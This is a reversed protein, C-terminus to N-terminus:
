FNDTIQEETLIGANILTEALAEVIASLRYIQAAQKEIVGEYSFPEEEITKVIDM